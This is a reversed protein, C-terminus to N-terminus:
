GNRVERRSRLLLVLFIPAGVLGTVVGLPVESRTPLMRTLVDCAAVFVAGLLAAAPILKRHTVGVLPRLAHPVILGVFGVNGGVAVAAASLVATWLVCARRVEHVDVGLSAAEDEGSLMVDLPASWFYSAVLGAFVLPAALLVRRSSVGSIDGLAFDMLARSLEWRELALSAIFSGLSLFLSSLLFGTLLLVVIDDGTRHVALVIGLAACAGLMCGIPLLMEPAFVTGAASGLLAQTLLITARGGLSAGATTGLISPDALPNRFLGQVIVGGIALAAGALLAAALRTARLELFTRSLDAESLDGAGVRMAAVCVACLLAVLVLYVRGTTLWSFRSGAVRPAPSETAADASMPM